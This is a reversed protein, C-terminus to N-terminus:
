PNPLVPNPQIFVLDPKAENDILDVDNLYDVNEVPSPGFTMPTRVDITDTLIYTVVDAQQDAFPYHDLDDPYLIGEPTVSLPVAVQWLATKESVSAPLTDDTFGYSRYNQKIGNHGTYMMVINEDSQVCDSDLDRMTVPVPNIKFQEAAHNVAGVPESFHPNPQRVITEDPKVNAFTVVVGGFESPPIPVTFGIQGFHDTQSEDLGSSETGYRQVDNLIISKKYLVVPLKFNDLKLGHVFNQIMEHGREPYAQMMREFERALQDMMEAQAFDVMSLQGLDAGDFDAYVDPLWAGSEVSARLRIGEADTWRYNYSGDDHGNVADRVTEPSNTPVNSTIAGIGSVPVKVSALELDVAGNIRSDPDLVANMRQLITQTLISPTVTENDADLLSADIYTSRRLHNIASNHALKIMESTQKQGDISIPHIYGARSIPNEDVLDFLVEGNRLQSRIIADEGAFEEEPHKLALMAQTPVFVSIVEAEIPTIMRGAIPDLEFTVNQNLLGAENGYIRHFKIPQLKGGRFKGTPQLTESRSKTPSRFNQM